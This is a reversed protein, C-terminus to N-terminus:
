KSLTNEENEINNLKGDVTQITQPESVVKETENFEEAPLVACRIETNNLGTLDNFYFKITQEMGCELSTNKPYGDGIQIEQEQFTDGILIEIVLQGAPDGVKAKCESLRDAWPDQGEILEYSM